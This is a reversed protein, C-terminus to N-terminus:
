EEEELIKTRSIQLPTKIELLHSRFSKSNPFEPYGHDVYSHSKLCVTSTVEQVLPVCNRECLKSFKLERQLTFIWFATTWSTKYLKNKQMDEYDM